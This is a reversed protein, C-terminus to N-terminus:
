PVRRKLRVVRQHGALDKRIGVLEFDEHGALRERVAAAQDYGIEMLLHGGAALHAPGDSIIRDIIDMGGPGAALAQHPEHDRVEPMLSAMGAQSVYPPNVTILDFQRQNEGLGALPAFLDGELLTVRDTLGCSEVNERAVALAEASLDSAVVRARPCEDAVAIAICGSGTCLDLVRPQAPPPAAAGTDILEEDPRGGRDTFEGHDFQWSPRKGPQLIALAEDVLIETEPRPILVAPTVKLTLNRFHVEGLLYQTPVHDARRRVLERFASRAPDTVRRDHQVYLQIREVGLAHALLLEAELRADDIGKSEFFGRTWELLRIITWPQRGDHEPRSEPQSM